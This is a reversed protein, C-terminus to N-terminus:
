KNKSGGSKSGGGGGGSKSGGGGGGSKSGGGGGGSKSGGGGGGSTSIQKAVAGSISAAKAAGGSSAPLKAGQATLLKTAGSSIRPAQAAFQTLTKKSAGKQILAKVDARGLGAGGTKALNYTIGGATIKTPAKTVSPTQTPAQAGTSEADGQQKLDFAKSILAEFDPMQFEPMEFQPMEFQPMEFQPMEFGESGFSPYTSGAAGQAARLQSVSQILQDIGLDKRLKAVDQVQPQAQATQFVQPNALRAAAGEQQEAASSGGLRGGRSPKLFQGAAKLAETASTLSTQTPAGIAEVQGAFRRQRAV